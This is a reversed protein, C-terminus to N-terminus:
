QKCVTLSVKAQLYNFLCIFKKPWKIRRHKSTAVLRPRNGNLHLSKLDTLLERQDVHQSLVGTLLRYMM